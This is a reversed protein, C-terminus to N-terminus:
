NWATYLSTSFRKQFQPYRTTRFHVQNWCSLAVGCLVLKTMRHKFCFNPSWRMMHCATNEHGDQLGSRIGHLKKKHPCRFGFTNEVGTGSIKVSFLHICTSIPLIQFSINCFTWSLVSECMEVNTNSIINMM